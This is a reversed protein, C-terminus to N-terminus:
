KKGYGHPKYDRVFQCFDKYYTHYGFSDMEKM